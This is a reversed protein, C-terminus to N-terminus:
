LLWGAAMDMCSPSFEMGVALFALAFAAAVFLGADVFAGTALVKVNFADGLDLIVVMVVSNPLANLRAPHGPHREPM